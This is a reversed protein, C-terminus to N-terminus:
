HLMFALYTQLSFPPGKFCTANIAIAPDHQAPGIQNTTTTTTTPYQQQRGYQSANIRARVKVGQTKVKAGQMRVKASQAQPTEKRHVPAPM